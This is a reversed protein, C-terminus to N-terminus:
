KSRANFKSRLKFTITTVQYGTEDHGQMLVTPNTAKVFTGNIPFVDLVKQTLDSQSNINLTRDTKSKCFVSFSGYCDVMTDYSGKVMGRIETPIDIVIFNVVDQGIPEPRGLFVKSGIDKVAKVLDDYILYVLSKKTGAM